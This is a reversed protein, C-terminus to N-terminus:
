DSDGDDSEDESQSSTTSDDDVFDDSSFKLEQKTKSYQELEEKSLSNLFKEFELIYKRKIEVLKKEYEKKEEDPLKKWSKKATKNDFKKINAFYRFASIPPTAPEAVKEPQSKKIKKKKSVDESIEAKPKKKPANKQLELQKKDEPLSELYKEYDKKYQEVLENAKNKYNNKDEESCNKWQTSIFNMRDKANIKKIEDSQLMIRSFLSYASNPPKDPKGSFKDKLALEEKSLVHKISIPNFDPHNETYKKVEETYREMDQEAKTIWLVKKKLSLKKWQERCQEKLSNKAQSDNNCINSGKRMQNEFYLLFPTYPKRPKLDLIKVKKNKEPLKEVEPHSLYFQQLEEDYKAKAQAALKEYKAKKEPALQKFKQSIQRSIEGIDIGPYQELLFPKKKKYFIQYSSPPKQPMGPHMYKKVPPPNLIFEKADTLVEKLLRYRRIKKQLLSWTEKCQDVSYHSFTIDEWNLKETRCRYSLSDNPPILLEMRRILEMLDNQPM